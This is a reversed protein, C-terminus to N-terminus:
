PQQAVGARLEADARVRLREDVQELLRARDLEVLAEGGAHAAVVRGRLQQLGRRGAAVRAEAPGAAPADRGPRGRVEDVDCEVGDRQGARARLIRDGGRDEGGARAVDAVDHDGAAPNNPVTLSLPRVGS